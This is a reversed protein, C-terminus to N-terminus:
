DTYHKYTAVDCNVDDRSDVGTYPSSKYRVTDDLAHSTNQVHKSM